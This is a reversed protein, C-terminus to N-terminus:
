NSSSQLRARASAIGMLSILRELEPGSSRGTLAQRIPMFLAKGKRGTSSKLAAMWAQYGESTLASDDLTEAASQCFAVDEADIEIADPQQTIIRWWDSAEPFRRINGVITSWFDSMRESSAGIDALRASFREVDGFQLQRANLSNLSEEDFRSSAKGYAALDFDPILDQLRAIPEAATSTGLAVLFAVLAQPEYGIVDRMGKVSLSDWRKSLPKGDTGVLLPLHAFDPVDFGLVEFLQIQTATNSVHDKGRLIHSVGMEGDDVVSTFTYLARGDARFLVPDSLNYAEFHVEGHAMDQWSIAQEHDLKFRWHPQYGEAELAVRDSESLKLASRDYIPPRGAGLATNRMLALEELTDYCPYARGSAQLRELAVAYRDLRLSQQEERQWEIGLWRLDKRIANTYEDKSRDTDTDDIRLLFEGGLKQALLVNLLAVRANGIHLYGTPSPAFRLLAKSFTM